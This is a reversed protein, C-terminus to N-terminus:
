LQIHLRSQLYLTSSLLCLAIFISSRSIKFIASFPSEAVAIDGEKGWLRKAWEDGAFMRRDPFTEKIDCEFGDAALTYQRWLCQVGDIEEVGVELLTFAPNQGITRYTQGIPLKDELFLKATYPSSM